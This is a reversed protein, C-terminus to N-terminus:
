QIYTVVKCKNNCLGNVNELRGERSLQTQLKGPLLTASFSNGYDVSMQIKM